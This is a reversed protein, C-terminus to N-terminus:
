SLDLKFAGAGIYIGQEFRPPLILGELM